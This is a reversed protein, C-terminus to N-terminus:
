RRGLPGTRAREIWGSLKATEAHVDAVATVHTRALTGLEARRTTDHALMADIAAALARADGPAVLAGWPEQVLESLGVEDSAVVCLEMAMAEKVVVPMSDRDGDRAVVCPMCLVDARELLARVAAPPQAGLLQVRDGLGLEAIQAELPEREPGGGAISVQVDPLRAAAALLHTFGKKEVLRGVAVVHRGGPLPASRTFEAPDIGMVQEFVSGARDPGIAARLDAVTYECGSTSFHSRRLREPLRGARLYIDYAHATVSSPVGILRAVRYADDSIATAFHAHVHVEPGIRALRRARVAIQRLPVGRESDSLARQRRTDALCRLPHRAMLWGLARVRQSRPELEAHHVEVGEPVLASDDDSTHRAEVSVRHGLARLAAAEQAVFTESLV